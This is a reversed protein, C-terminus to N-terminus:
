AGVKQAVASLLELIEDDRYSRELRYIVEGAVSRGNKEADARILQALPESCRLQIHSGRKVGDIPKRGRM